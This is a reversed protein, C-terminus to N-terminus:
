KKLNKKKKYLLEPPDHSVSIIGAVPRLQCNINGNSYEFKIYGIISLYM